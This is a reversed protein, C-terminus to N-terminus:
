ARARDQRREDAPEPVDAFAPPGGGRRTCDGGQRGEDEPVAHHCARARRRRRARVPLGPGEEELHAGGEASGAGGPVGGAVGGDRDVQAAGGAVQTRRRAPFRVRDVLPAHTAPPAGGAHERPVHELRGWAVCRKLADVEDLFKRKIIEEVKRQHRQNRLAVGQQKQRKLGRVKRDVVRDKIWMQKRLSLASSLRRMETEYRAPVGADAARASTEEKSLKILHMIKARASAPIGRLYSGADVVTSVEYSALTENVSSELRSENNLASELLSIISAVAETAGLGDESVAATADAAASAFSADASGVARHDGLGDGPAAGAVLPEHIGAATLLSV